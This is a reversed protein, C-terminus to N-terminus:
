RVPQHHSGERAEAIGLYARQAEGELMAALSAAACARVQMLASCMCTANLLIGMHLMLPALRCERGPAHVKPVPDTAIADM